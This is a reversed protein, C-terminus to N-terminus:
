DSQTAHKVCNCVRLHTLATALMETLRNACRLDLDRLASYETVERLRFRKDALFINLMAQAEEGSMRNPNPSYAAPMKDRSCPGPSHHRVDSRLDDGEQAVQRSPSRAQTEKMQHM